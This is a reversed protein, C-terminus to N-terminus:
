EIEFLVQGVPVIQGEDVGCYKVQGARPSKLENQMKMAEIVVLGQGAEVDTGQEVLVTIVKGPMMAKLTAKGSVDSQERRKSFGFRPPRVTIPYTRRNWWVLTEEGRDALLIEERCGAIEFTLYGPGCAEMVVPFTKQGGDPENLTVWVQEQRREIQVRYNRDQFLLDIKM